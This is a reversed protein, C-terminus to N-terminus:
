GVVPPSLLNPESGGDPMAPPPLGAPLPDNSMQSNGLASLYRARSGLEEVKEEWRGGMEAGSFAPWDGRFGTGHSHNGGWQAEGRRGRGLYFWGQWGPFPCLKPLTALGTPFDPM